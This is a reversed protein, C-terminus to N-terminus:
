ENQKSKATQAFRITAQIKEIQTVVAKKADEM